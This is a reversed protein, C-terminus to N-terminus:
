IKPVSGPLFRARAAWPLTHRAPSSPWYGRQMVLRPVGGCDPTPCPSGLPQGGLTWSVCGLAPQCPTPTDDLHSCDFAIEVAAGPGVCVSPWTVTIKNTFDPPSEDATASPTECGAANVAIVPEVFMPGGIYFELGDATQGSTNCLLVSNDPLPTPSLASATPQATPQTPTPLYCADSTTFASSRAGGSLAVAVALAVVAILCVALIPLRM